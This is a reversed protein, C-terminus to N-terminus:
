SLAKIGKIHSAIMGIDTVTIENDGNADAAKIQKSNLAKIGKIHSAIMGIDTVNVVGDLNADGKKTKPKNDPKSGTSPKKSSTSDKKSSSAASKKSSTSDKKSSSATPKKSSTSDKKSSSATPKKSSTNEKKSSSATPKKSSTNEKKSSSATPKKSSTNEKKSSSATPKKSSTNEKKSSSATPKKKVVFTKKQMDKTDTTKVKADAIYYEGNYDKGDSDVIKLTYEDPKINMITYGDKPYEFIKNLKEVTKPIKAEFGGVPAALPCDFNYEMSIWDSNRYSPTDTMWVEIYGQEDPITFTMAAGSVYICHFSSGNSDSRLNIDCSQSGQVNHYIMDDNVFGPFADTFKMRYKTYTTATNYSTCIGASSYNMEISFDLPFTTEVEVRKGCATGPFFKNDESGYSSLPPIRELTPDVLINGTFYIWTQEDNKNAYRSNVDIIMKNAPITMKDVAQMKSRDRYIYYHDADPHLYYVEENNETCVQSSGRGKSTFEDTWHEFRKTNPRYPEYSNKMFSLDPITPIDAASHINTFDEMTDDYLSLTNNYQNIKAVKEGKSNVLVFDLSGLSSGDESTLDFNLYPRNLRVDIIKDPHSLDYEGSASATICSANEGLLSTPYVAGGFIMVMAAIGSIIKKKM